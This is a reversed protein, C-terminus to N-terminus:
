KESLEDIPLKDLVSAVINAKEDDLAQLPMREYRSMHGRAEMAAKITLHWGFKKVTEAFFPAEIENVIRMYADTNGNLYHERFRIALKPEFVGIGNLYAQCGDDAFRLWQSKGGGALVISARDKITNIVNRTFDDEKADEKIAIVNSLDVLRDLSEVPWNYSFDGYGSILKMEHILIGIGTSDNIKKFHNYVQDDSYVKERFILSILDAGILESHRAFEVSVETSCHLPDATIMICNSDIGKVTKTVFTNLVKIEEWSLESFRSNYAMVYFIRAGAEYAYNIYKELADFDIEDDKERFPTVISFVPGKIKSRLNELHNM